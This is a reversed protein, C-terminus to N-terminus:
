FDLDLDDFDYSNIEKALKREELRAEIRQRMDLNFSRSRSIPEKIDEDDDDLIEDEDFPEMDDTMLQEGADGYDPDDQHETM